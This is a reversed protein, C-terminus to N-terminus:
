DLGDSFEFLVSFQKHFIDFFLTAGLCRRGNAFLRRHHFRPVNGGRLLSFFAGSRSSFRPAPPCKFVEYEIPVPIIRSKLWALATTPRTADWGIAYDVELM